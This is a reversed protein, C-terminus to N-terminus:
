NHIKNTTHHLLHADVNTEPVLVDFSCKGVFANETEEGTCYGALRKEKKYVGSHVKLM